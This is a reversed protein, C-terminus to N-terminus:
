VPPPSYNVNWETPGDISVTWTGDPTYDEIVCSTVGINYEDSLAQWFTAWEQAAAADVFYRTTISYYTANQVGNIYGLRQFNDAQGNTQGANYMAQLKNLRATNSTDSWNYANMISKVQKTMTTM